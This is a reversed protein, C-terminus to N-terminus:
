NTITWTWERDAINKQRFGELSESPRCTYSNNNVRKFPGPREVCLQLDTGSWKGNRCKNDEEAYYYFSGKNFEGLSRCEGPAIAQWGEVLWDSTSKQYHSFAVYAKCASQNCVRFTFSNAANRREEEERQKAAAAQRNREQEQARRADEETKLRADLDRKMQAARDAQQRAEAEARTRADQERKLQAAVEAARQNTTPSLWASLSDKQSIATAALVLLVAAAAGLWRKRGQAGGEWGAGKARPDRGLARLLEDIDRRFHEHSVVQKQHLVLTRISEPLQDAAPLTARDVLVPIVLLERALAAGLEDRVFDREQRQMRDQLITLWQPGIVAIFTDCKDLAKELERDFRQGALLSDVDMFVNEDGFELALRDRIRAASAAGDDRRYSIFIRHVM